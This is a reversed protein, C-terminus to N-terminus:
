WGTAVAHLPLCVAGNPDHVGQEMEEQGFEGPDMQQHCSRRNTEHLHRPVGVSGRVPRRQAGDHPARRNGGM